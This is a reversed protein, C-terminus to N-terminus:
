VVGTWCCPAAELYAQLIRLTWRAILFTPSRLGAAGQAQVWVGEVLAWPGVWNPGIWFSLPGMVRSIAISNSRYGM